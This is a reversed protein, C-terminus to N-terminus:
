QRGERRGRESVRVGEREGEGEGRESARERDREEGKRRQRGKEGKTEEQHSLDPLSLPLSPSSLSLLPSLCFLPPPLPLSLSRRRRVAVIISSPLPSRRRGPSSAIVLWTLDTKRGKKRGKEEKSPTLSRRVTPGWSPGSDSDIRDVGGSECRIEASDVGIRARTM